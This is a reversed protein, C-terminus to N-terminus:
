DQYIKYYGKGNQKVFYLAEDAQSIVKEIDSDAFIKSVGLSCRIAINHDKSSVFTNLRLVLENLVEKLEKEDDLSTLFLIFEDGGYRGVLGDYKKEYERLIYGISKLAIDGTNHGYTDNLKKLDDLDLFCLISIKNPNIKKHLISLQNLFVSRTVVGTLGDTLGKSTLQIIEKFDHNDPRENQYIKKELEQVSQVLMDVAAMQKKVYSFILWGLLICLGVCIFIILLLSPLISLFIQNFSSTCIIDWNTNEVRTYSSYLLTGGDFSWFSGKQKNLLETEIKNTSTNFLFGDKIQDIFPDGYALDFSSSMIQGKSGILTANVGTFSTAENLMDVIEDFYIASFLCGTINGEADKLPVAVTYNLTVGDAGAAFSDTVQTEGTSFLKQLYDRSALSAPELDSSHVFIDSDVYCTLFYGLKPGIVDLKRVKEIPAINPDYYDPLIALSDLLAISQEIRYEVQNKIKIIENNVEDSMKNVVIFGGGFLVTVIILAGCLLIRLFIPRFSFNWKQNSTEKIKEKM